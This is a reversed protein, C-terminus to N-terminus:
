NLQYNGMNNIISQDFVTNILNKAYDTLTKRFILAIALLVAIIIVVELTGFGTRSSRARLWFLAQSVKKTRRFNTWM